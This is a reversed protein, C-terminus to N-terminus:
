GVPVRSMLQRLANRHEHKPLKAAVSQTRQKSRPYQFQCPLTPQRTPLPKEQTLTPRRRKEEKKEGDMENRPNKQYLTTTSPRAVRTTAM